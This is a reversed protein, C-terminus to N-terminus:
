DLISERRRGDSRKLPQWLDESQISITSEVSYAYSTDPYQLRWVYIPTRALQAAIQTRLPSVPIVLM